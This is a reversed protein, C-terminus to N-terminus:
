FYFINTIRPMRETDLLKLFESIKAYKKIAEKEKAKRIQLQVKKCEEKNRKVIGKQEM